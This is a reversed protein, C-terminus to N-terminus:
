ICSTGNNKGIRRLFSGIFNNSKLVYIFDFQNFSLFFFVNEEGRPALEEQAFLLASNLDGGRILEILRQQQLHFYLHSDTDLIKKKKKFLFILELFFNVLYYYKIIIFL